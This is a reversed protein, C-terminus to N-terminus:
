GSNVTLEVADGRISVLSITIQRGRTTSSSSFSLHEGPSNLTFVIPSDLDNPEITVDSGALTITFRQSEITIVTPPTVLVQCQGSRCADVSTAETAPPLSTSTSTPPGNSASESATAPSGGSPPAIDHHTPACAALAAALGIAVATSV